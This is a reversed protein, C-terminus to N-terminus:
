RCFVEAADRLFEAGGPVVADYYERFREDEVYIQTLNRHLEPSYLGEPWFLCLWERHLRCLEGAEEGAPDGGAAAERLKEKVAQELEEAQRFQEISRDMGKRNAAEITETGYKERIEEGYLAENEELLCKQFGKFKERDEMKEEGKMARLTRNVTGILQELQRKQEQLTLLHAELVPRRDYGPQQMMQRIERLGVGMERYFLIQQLEDVEQERYVRYGNERNRVPSLLGLKEYYRLTRASVGSLEALQGVSYEM